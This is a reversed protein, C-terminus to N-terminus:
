KAGYWRRFSEGRVSITRRSSEGAVSQLPRRIARLTINSVAASSRRAVLVSAAAPAPAAPPLATTQGNRIAILDVINTLGNGDVDARPDFSAASLDSFVQRRALHLDDLNTAGNGDVDGPLINFAFRFDGGRAGDGSPFESAGTTWEGDLRNGAVDLVLENELEFTYRDTAIPAAAAWTITTSSAGPALTPTLPIDGTSVGHLATSGAAITVPEDFTVTIRNLNKWPLPKLQEDGTLLEFPAATWTSGSVEIQLVRPGTLDGDPTGPTGNAVGAQWNAEDNGFTTLNRRLLSPGDGDPSSPWPSADDYTIFDVPYYPVFGPFDSDPPEPEGPRSLELTEGANSLDIDGPLGSYSFIQVDAPVHQSARFDAPEDDVLLLYGGASISVNAPFTFSLGKTFQWHNAPNAPDFLPVSHNTINRLEIFEEFTSPNYMIESFVIPGVAPLSNAQARTATAMPVFQAEGTSTIYRGLTIPNDTAGFNWYDGYSEGGPGAPATLVVEEGLESFAFPMPGTGFHFQQSFVLYAGPNIVTGNAIRYKTPQAASDSLYWGGLNVPVLSTNHLEVWDGSVQDQHALLENIVVAGPYLGADVMGPSGGLRSSAHWNSPLSWNVGTQTTSRVVLSHGMGDAAPSWQNGYAFDELIAGGADRLTIQEGSNSLSGTYVGAIPIAAGYRQQFAAQNKVVITQGGAPLTLNGFTFDIGASFNVGALQRSQSSVNKIEIFEFDEPSFSGAGVPSPSYHIETVLLDSALPVRDELQEFAHLPRATRRLHPRGAANPRLQSRADFARAAIDRRQALLDAVQRATAM